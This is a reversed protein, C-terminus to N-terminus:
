YKREALQNIEANELHTPIAKQSSLSNIMARGLKSSTTVNKMKKMLPFFPTMIVYLANYLKVKSKVGKEPIIAGPRFMYASKFGKNLIYNETKGKVRAWMVNGKESSDTGAGSVYNFVMQPNIKYCLDTLAKTINFTLASFQEESLGVSSVGMSHFCADVLGIETELAAIQTFDSLLLEKIKPHSYGITSRNILIVEAIQNDELCELLVAKGVMGTSGTVLVKFM